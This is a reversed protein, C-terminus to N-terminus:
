LTSSQLLLFVYSFISVDSSMCLKFLFASLYLFLQSSLMYRTSLSLITGKAGYISCYQVTLAYFNHFIQSSITM